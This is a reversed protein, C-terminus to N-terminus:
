KEPNEGGNGAEKKCPEIVLKDAIEPFDSEECVTMWPFKKTLAAAFLGQGCKGLCRGSPSFLDVNKLGCSPSRAKFIFAAIDIRELLHLEVDIWDLLEDTKDEGTEIVKIRTGRPSAELRMPPRPVGLGCGYEPCIPILEVKDKLLEYIMPVGKPEGNYRYNLGLLCASIGIKLKKRM